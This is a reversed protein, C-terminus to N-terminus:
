LLDYFFPFPLLASNVLVSVKTEVKSTCVRSIFPRFSPPRIFASIILRVPSVHASRSVITQPSTMLAIATIILLIYM